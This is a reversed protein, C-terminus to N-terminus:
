ARLQKFSSMQIAIFTVINEFKQKLANGM